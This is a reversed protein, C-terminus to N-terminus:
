ALVEIEDGVRVTGPTSVVAGVALVGERERLITRLVDLDREIGDPQPRTVMVCRPVPQVVDLIASGLRVRRGVLGDEDEGDLVVNPRFRRIDWQDLGGAGSASVLGGAGSAPALRAITGTGLLSVRVNGDDHYAGAPGGWRQWDGGGRDWARDSEYNPRRHTSAPELRVPRGLWDSLDDADRTLRGDPLRVAVSGDPERRGTAHLLAPSRRATLVTGTDLALVGHSRDGEVGLPGVDAEQLREGQMSKVPYRWLELVRM